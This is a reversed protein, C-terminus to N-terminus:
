DRLRARVAERYEKYFKKVSCQGSGERDERVVMDIIPRLASLILEHRLENIGGNNVMSSPPLTETKSEKPAQVLNEGIPELATRRGTQFAHHAQEPHHLAVLHARYRAAVHELLLAEVAPDIVEIKVTRKKPRESSTTASLAHHDRLSAHTMIENGKESEPSRRHHDYDHYVRTSTAALSLCLACPRVAVYLLQLVVCARRRLCPKLKSLLDRFRSTPHTKTFLDAPQDISCVPVLHLVGQQLHHRIFHCDIEIHKTREHFVDNHAIQIASHNDCHLDVSPSDIGLYQILWRLWLLESTADLLPVVILPTAKVYRLIRLSAAYYTSRPASMFQSVIHVVHSIDPRTVTLYILSGVLQRYLTSDSLPEDDSTNLRVNNEKLFANKMDMQFLGWGRAAAVAILTRVSTLHAVPAFIEEYDIEYEETFGRTVLRAKYRDVTDDAQTKIKYVWKCEVTSKESPLDVMDWTHTKDLAHLKDKMAIAAISRHPTHLSELEFLRGVKRGIGIIEGNASGSTTSLASSHINTRSLVQTVITEVNAATLTSSSSDLSPRSSDTVAATQRNHYGKRKSRVSQSPPPLPAWVPTALVPQSHQYVMTKKRTEESRLEALAQGVTPFPHRHLLSVRIHEYNPPLAMLFHRLRSRDRYAPFADDDTPCTWTPEFRILVFTIFSLIWSINMPLDSYIKSPVSAQCNTSKFKHHTASPQPNCLTSIHHDAPKNKASSHRLM